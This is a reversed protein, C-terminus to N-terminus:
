RIMRSFLEFLNPLEFSASSVNIQKVVKEPETSHVSTASSTTEEGPSLTKTSANSTTFQGDNTTEIIELLKDATIKNKDFTITATNKDRNEKFDFSCREVAGTEKLAMRIAGGCAHECSMGAVEVTLARNASVKVPEKLVTKKEISIIKKEGSGSCSSAALAVSVAGIFIPLFLHRM